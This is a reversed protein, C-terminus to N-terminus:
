SALKLRRGLVRSTSLRRLKGAPLCVGLRCDPGSGVITAWWPGLVALSEQQTTIADVAIDAGATRPQLDRQALAKVALRHADLLQTANAGPQYNIILSAAPVAPHASSVLVRDDSLRTVFQVSDAVHVPSAAFRLATIHGNASQFVDVVPGTSSDNGAAVLRSVPDLDRTRLLRATPTRTDAAAPRFVLRRDIHDAVAWARWPPQLALIALRLLLTAQGLLVAWAISTAWGTGLRVLILFGIGAVLAFQAGLRRALQSALYRRLWVAHPDM